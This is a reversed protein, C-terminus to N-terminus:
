NKSKKTKEFLFGKLFFMIFSGIIAFAIIGGITTTIDMTMAHALFYGTSYESGATGAKGEALYTVALGVASCIATAILCLAIKKIFSIALFFLTLTIAGIFLPTKFFFFALVAGILILALALGFIKWSSRNKLIALLCLLTIVTAVHNIDHNEGFFISQLVIVVLTIIAITVLNRKIWESISKITKGM